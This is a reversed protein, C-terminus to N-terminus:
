VCNSTESARRMNAQNSCGSRLAVKWSVTVAGAWQRTMELAGVGSGDAAPSPVAVQAKEGM